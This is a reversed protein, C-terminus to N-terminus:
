EWKYSDREYHDNMWERFTMQNEYEAYDRLVSEIPGNSNPLHGYYWHFSDGRAEKFSMDYLYMQTLTAMLGTRDSGAKCHMLATQKNAKIQDLLDFFENFKKKSLLQKRSFILDRHEVGYKESVAKENLYWEDTENAGAFNIIVDIDHKKIKKELVSKKLKGSRFIIPTQDNNKIKHFNRRKYIFNTSSVVVLLALIIKKHKFLNIM